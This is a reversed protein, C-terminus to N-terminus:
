NETVMPLGAAHCPRGQFRQPGAHRPAKWKRRDTHRGRGTHVIHPPVPCATPRPTGTWRAPSPDVPTVTNTRLTPTHLLERNPLDWEVLMGPVLEPHLTFDMDRASLMLAMDVQHLGGYLAIRRGGLYLM